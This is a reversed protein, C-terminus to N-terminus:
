IIGITSVRMTMVLRWDGGTAAAVSDSSSQAMGVM